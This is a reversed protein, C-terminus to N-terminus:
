GTIANEFHTIKYQNTEKQVAIVDIRWNCDLDSQEQLYAQASALMNERKRQTIAEEPLGFTLSSRTKVEVFVLYSNHRAILDIEGYPTHINREIIRYGKKSLYKAAKKEGWSGLIQNPRKM